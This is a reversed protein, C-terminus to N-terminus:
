LATVPSQLSVRGAPDFKSLSLRSITEVDEQVNLGNKLIIVRVDKFFHPLIVLEHHVLTMIWRCGPLFQSLIQSLSPTGESCLAHCKSVKLISERYMLISIMDLSRAMKAFTPM